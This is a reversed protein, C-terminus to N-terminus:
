VDTYSVRSLATVTVLNDASSGFALFYNNGSIEGIAGTTSTYEVDHNVRLDVDFQRLTNVYAASVGATPNFDWHQHWMVEFRKDYDVSLLVRSAGGVEASNFINTFTAQTGNASKDRVLWVDANNVGTASAGPAYNVNGRFQIRKVSIDHGLRTAKTVGEAIGVLFQGTAASSSVASTSDITFGVAQDWAKMEAKRPRPAYPIHVFQSAAAAQSAAAPVKPKRAKAKGGGGSIRGLCRAWKGAMSGKTKAM